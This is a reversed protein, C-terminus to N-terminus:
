AWNGHTFASTWPYLQDYESKLGTDESLKRLDKAAWHGLDVPVFELWRDENALQNLVDVNVSIPINGTPDDLKLFALKAQGSGYQRYAMWLNPDDCAKLHSITVYSELLTRVGIRGLISTSNGVCLLEELIALSYAGFGFAADHRPDVDTTKLCSNEHRALAERVERVRVPTT